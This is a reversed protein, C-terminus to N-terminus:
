TLRLTAAPAVVAGLEYGKQAGVRLPAGNETVVVLSCTADFGIGVIESANVKSTGLATQIAVCVSTWIDEASQEVIHGGDEFNLIDKKGVGLCQGFTDFVGARASGTGVDVGIFYPGAM